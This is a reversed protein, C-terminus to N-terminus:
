YLEALLYEIILQFPNVVSLHSTDFREFVLPLESCALLIPTDSYSNALEAIDSVLAESCDNRMVACIAKNLLLQEQPSPFTYKSCLSRFWKSGVTSKSAFVVVDSRPFMQDIYKNALVLGDILEIGVADTIERLYPTISVCPCVLTNVGCDRLAEVKNMLMESNNDVCGSDDVIHTSANYYIFEPYENDLFPARAKTFADLFQGTFHLGAVAGFGGLIGLRPQNM